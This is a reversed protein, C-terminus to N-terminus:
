ASVVANKQQALLVTHPPRLIHCTDCFSAMEEALPAAYRQLVLGHVRLGLLKRADELKRLTEPLLAPFEGDSILLRWIAFVEDCVSVPSLTGACGDAESLQAFGWFSFGTCPVAADCAWVNPCSNSSM